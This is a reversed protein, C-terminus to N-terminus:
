EDNRDRKKFQRILISKIRHIKTAVNVSSLGTIDGISAADLGELYLLITQRDVPKLKQILEFLREMVRQKDLTKEHDDLPGPTSLVDFDELSISSPTSGRRRTVQSIAVNHAVRYVWTRLSCRGDFTDFSQWLALHIEQLLDRCKDPDSEYGRALRALADRFDRAVQEYLQDRNFGDELVALVAEDQLVVAV